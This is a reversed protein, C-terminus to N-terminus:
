VKSFVSAIANRIGRRLAHQTKVKPKSNDGRYYTIKWPLKAEIEWNVQEGKKHAPLMKRYVLRSMIRQWASPAGLYSQLREEVEEVRKVVAESPALKKMAYLLVRINTVFLRYRKARQQL